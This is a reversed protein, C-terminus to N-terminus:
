PITPFGGQLITDCAYRGKSDRVKKSPEQLEGAILMEDLIFYAQMCAFPVSMAPVIEIAYTGGCAVTHLHVVGAACGAACHSYAAFALRDSTGRPYLDAPAFQISALICARVGLHTCTVKHFNFILDLECVNGFYRDLVEVYHHILELTILENDGVDIGMVFYLSAYRKYVM